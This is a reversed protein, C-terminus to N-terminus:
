LSRWIDNIQKLYKEYIATIEKIDMTAERDKVNYCKIIDKVM